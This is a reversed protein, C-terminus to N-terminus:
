GMPQMQRQKLRVYMVPNRQSEYVFRLECEEFFARAADGSYIFDILGEVLCKYYYQKRATCICRIRCRRHIECKCLQITQEVRVADASKNSKGDATAYVYDNAFSINEAGFGAAQSSISLADKTWIEEQRMIKVSFVPYFHILTNERDEGILTVNPKDVVLREEYSGALVM